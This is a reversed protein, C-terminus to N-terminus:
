TQFVHSICAQRRATARYGQPLQVGDMFLTWLTKKCLIRIVFSTSPVALIFRVLLLAGSLQLLLRYSSYSIKHFHNCNVSNECFAGNYISSLTRFISAPNWINCSMLVCCSVKRHVLQSM